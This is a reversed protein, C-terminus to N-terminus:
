DRVGYAFNLMNQVGTVAEEQGLGISQFFSALQQIGAADDPGAPPLQGSLKAAIVWSMTRRDRAQNAFFSPDSAAREFNAGWAQNVNSAVAEIRIFTGTQPSRARNLLHDVDFSAMESDTVGVGYVEKIFAKYAARYKKYGAAVWLSTDHPNGSGKVIVVKDESRRGLGAVDGEVNVDLNALLGLVSPNEVQVQVLPNQVWRALLAQQRATVIGHLSQAM